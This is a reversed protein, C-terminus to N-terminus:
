GTLKPFLSVDLMQGEIKKKEGQKRSRAAQLRASADAEM